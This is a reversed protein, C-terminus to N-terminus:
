IQLRFLLNMLQDEPIDSSKRPANNFLLLNPSGEGVDSLQDASGLKLLRKKLETPTLSKDSEGALLAMVGAVHPSAMSTGSITNVEKEGGIWAATIEHGPAFVDVCEGYNSFWARQDQKTTAGVTIADEVAAPSYNCADKNDNGAAVAFLVGRKIAAAVAKDLAPSKGGGLSMNAVSKVKKGSASKQMHNKATFEVGKVVDSMSGYGSSRLVKVAIVTAKKAVGYQKGAITSAVHTGHGNGDVDDDFIPATLGWVARGEFDEHEVNIGTDVVYVDVGEGASKPFSYEKPMPLSRKSIRLLGWNGNKGDIDDSEEEDSAIPLVSVVQNAEVAEVDPMSRLRLLDATPLVAAYGLEYKQMLQSDSQLIDSGFLRQLHEEVYAEYKSQKELESLGTLQLYSPEKLTVIYENPIIEANDPYFLPALYKKHKHVSVALTSQVIVGSVFLLIATIKM